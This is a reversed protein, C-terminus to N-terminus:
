YGESEGEKRRLCEIVLELESSIVLSTFFEVKLRINIIQIICHHVSPIKSSNVKFSKM